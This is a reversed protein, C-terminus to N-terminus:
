KGRGGTSNRLRKMLLSAASVMKKPTIMTIFKRRSHAMSVEAAPQHFDPMNDVVKNDDMLGQEELVSLEVGLVPLTRNIPGKNNPLLDKDQFHHPRIFIKEHQIYFLPYEDRITDLLPGKFVTVLACRKNDGNKFNPADNEKQM